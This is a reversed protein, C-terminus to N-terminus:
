LTEFILNFLIVSGIEKPMINKEVILEGGDYNTSDSLQIILTKYRNSFDGTLEYRDRHLKFKSGKTYKIYGVSPISVINIQLLKSLLFDNLTINNNISYDESIRYDNFVNEKNLTIGSPLFNTPFSLLYECDEPTFLKYIEIDNM